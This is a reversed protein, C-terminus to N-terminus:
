FYNSFMLCFRCPQLYNIFKYNVALVSVTPYDSYLSLIYGSILRIFKTVWVIKLNNMLTSKACKTKMKIDGHRAEEELHEFVNEKADTPYKTTVYATTNM